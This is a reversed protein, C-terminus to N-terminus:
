GIIIIDVDTTVNVDSLLVRLEHLDFIQVAKNDFLINLVQWIKYYYFFLGGPSGIIGM